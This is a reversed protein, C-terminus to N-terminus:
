TARTKGIPAPDKARKNTPAPGKGGKTVGGGRCWKESLFQSM